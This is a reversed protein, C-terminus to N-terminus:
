LLLFSLPYGSIESKIEEKDQQSLEPSLTLLINVNGLNNKVIDKVSVGNSALLVATDVNLALTPNTLPRQFEFLPLEGQLINYYDEPRTKLYYGVRLLPLAQEPPEERSVDRLRTWLKFNCGQALASFYYAPIRRKNPIIDSSFNFIDLVANRSYNNAARIMDESGSALAALAVDEPSLNLEIATNLAWFKERSILYSLSEVIADDSPFLDIDFFPVEEEEGALDETYLQWHAPYNNMDQKSLLHSYLSRLAATRFYAFNPILFRNIEGSLLQEELMARSQPKLRNVFFLVMEADNRRLSEYVGALSEYIGFVEGTERNLNVAADSSLVVETAVEIYRQLPTIGRDLALNFYSESIAFEEKASQAYENWETFEGAFTDVFEKVPLSYITEGEVEIVGQKLLTYNDKAQIPTESSSELNHLEGDKIYLISKSQEGRYGGPFIHAERGEGEPIALNVGLLEIRVKKRKSDDIYYAGNKSIVEALLSLKYRDSPSLLSLYEQNSETEEEELSPLYLQVFRGVDLSYITEAGTYRNELVLKRNRLLTKVEQANLTTVGSSKETHLEQDPSIYFKNRLQFDREEIPYAWVEDGYEEVVVGINSFPVKVKRARNDDYYYAGKKTIVDSIRSLLADKEPLQM